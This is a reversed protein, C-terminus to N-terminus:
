PSWGVQVCESRWGGAPKWCGGAPESGGRPSRGGDGGERLLRVAALSSDRDMLANRLRSCSSRRSAMFVMSQLLHRPFCLHPGRRPPARPIGLPPDCVGVRAAPAELHVPLREAGPVAGGAPGQVGGLLAVEPSLRAQQPQLDGVEGHHLALDVVDRTPPVAGAHGWVRGGAGQGGGAGRERCLPGAALAHADGGVGVADGVVDGEACPAGRGGPALPQDQPPTGLGERPARLESPGGSVGEGGLLAALPLGPEAASRCSKKARTKWPLVPGHSPPGQGGGEAGVVAGPPAGLASPAAGRGSAFGLRRFFARRGSWRQAPAARSPVFLAREFLFFRNKKKKKFFVWFAFGQNCERTLPPPPCISPRVSPCVSRSGSGEPGSGAGPPGHGQGGRPRRQPETALTQTAEARSSGWPEHRAM